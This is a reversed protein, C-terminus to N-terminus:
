YIFTASKAKNQNLISRKFSFYYYKRLMVVNDLDHRYHMYYKSKRFGVGSWFYPSVAFVVTEKRKALSRTIGGIYNSDRMAERDEPFVVYVNKGEVASALHENARKQGILSLLLTVLALLASLPLFILLLTSVIVVHTSTEILAAAYSLLRTVTSLVRVRSLWLIANRSRKYINSTKLSRVLYGAYSKSESFLRTYAGSDEKTRKPTDTYEKRGELEAIRKRLAENEKRLIRLEKRSM